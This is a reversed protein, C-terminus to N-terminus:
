AKRRRALLGIASLGLLSLSAPEPVSQGVTFHMPPNSPDETGIYAPPTTQTTDLDYFSNATLTNGNTVANYPAFTFTAPTATPTISISGLYIEDGTPTGAGGGNAGILPSSTQSPGTAESLAAGTGTITTTAPGQFDAANPAISNITAQGSTLLMQFGAAGLGGDSNIISTSGNTLTEKLFVPVSMATGAVANPYDSNTVYQYTVSARANQGLLGVGMGVMAATMTWKRLTM